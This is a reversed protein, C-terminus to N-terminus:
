SRRRFLLWAISGLVAVVVLVKIVFWILSAVFSMVAFVVVIAIIGAGVLLVGDMARLGTREEKAM